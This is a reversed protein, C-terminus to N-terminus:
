MHVLYFTSFIILAFWVPNITIKIKKDSKRLVACMISKVVFTIVIMAFSTYQLSVMLTWVLDIITQM